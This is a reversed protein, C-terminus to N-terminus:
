EAATIRNDGLRVYPLRIRVATKNGGFLARLFVTFLILFLRFIVFIGIFPFIVVVVFIFIVIINGLPAYVIIVAGFIIEIGPPTIRRPM